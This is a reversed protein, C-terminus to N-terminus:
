TYSTLIARRYMHVIEGIYNTFEAVLLRSGLLSTYFQTSIHLSTYLHTSIHLTHLTSHPTHLGSHCTCFTFHLTHLASHPTYLTSQPTYLTSHPTYLTFHLTHLTFNLTHLTSHLTRFTFHPTHLTILLFHSVDSTSRRGRLIVVSIELISRRCRFSCSMKHFRRLLVAGAVCVSTRCTIPQLTEFYRAQWALRCSLRSSFRRFPSRPWLFVVSVPSSARPRLLDKM